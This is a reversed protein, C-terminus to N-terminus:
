SLVLCFGRLKLLRSLGIDPFLLRPSWVLQDGSIPTWQGSYDRTSLVFATPRTSCSVRSISVCVCLCLNSRFRRDSNIEALKM